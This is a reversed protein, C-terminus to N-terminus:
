KPEGRPLYHDEKRGTGAPVLRYYQYRHGTRKSEGNAVSEKPIWWGKPPTPTERWKEAKIIKTRKVPKKLNRSPTYRMKGAGNEERFTEKTEKVLYAALDEYQGEEYLMSPYIGGEWQKRIERLCGEELNLILHHHIAKKKYETVAIYKLDSEQKRYWRRMRDLFRKLNKAAEKPDPRSEKRYTLVIHYDGPQFNTAILRRLKKVANRENVRRVDEPTPQQREEPKTRKGYRGSFVKEVDIYCGCDYENKIYPM